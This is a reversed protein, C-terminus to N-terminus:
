QRLAGDGWISFRLGSARQRLLGAAEVFERLGKEPRLNALTGITLPGSRPTATDRPRFRTLDVGNRVVVLRGSRAARTGDLREAIAESNVMIHSALKLMLSHIRRQHRPRLDGLDRQSAIAVPVRALRAATIGLVNSYFDFSHVIQTQRARLRRALAAVALLFGPSRFSGRGCSWPQLGVEELRLRLPGEARLCAVDVNWRSRDLGRAVAVFQGETGGLNLTDGMLLVAPRRGSM